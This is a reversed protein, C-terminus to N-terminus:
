APTVRRFSQKRARVRPALEIRKWDPLTGLSIFSSLVARYILSAERYIVEQKPRDSAKLDGGHTGKSRFGYLDSLTQRNRQRKALAGGILQASRVAVKWGIGGDGGDGVVIEFAITLDLIQDVLQHRRQSQAFREMSRLLKSKLGNPLSGFATADKEVSSADVVAHSQVFPEIEKSIWNLYNEFENLDLDQDEYQFWSAAALPQSGAVAELFLLAKKLEADVEDFKSFSEVPSAIYPVDAIKKVIAAGPVDFYRNGTFVAGNWLKQARELIRRKMHRDSLSEFPLLSIGQAIKIERDVQLGWIAAIQVGRAERTNLLRILWDVASEVAEEDPPIARYLLPRALRDAFLVVGANGSFLSRGVVAEFAKCQKIASELPALVSSDPPYQALLTKDQKWREWREVAAKLAEILNNRDDSM